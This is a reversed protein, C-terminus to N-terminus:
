KLANGIASGGVALLSKLDEDNFMLQAGVYYDRGFSGQGGPPRSNIVDDVGALLFMNRYFQVTSYIRLRPWINTRFDFADIKFTWREKLLDVDLGIGGTPAFTREKTIWSINEGAISGVFRDGDFM